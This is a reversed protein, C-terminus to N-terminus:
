IEDKGKQTQLLEDIRLFSNALAAEYNKRIFLEDHELVAPLYKATFRAVECGGHGDFVGFLSMGNRSFSEFSFSTDEM